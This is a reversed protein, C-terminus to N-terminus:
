LEHGTIVKPHPGRVLGIEKAVALGTQPHDGTVMVVKVGADRCRAIAAPVERRPPDHLGVLGAFTLTEELRDREPLTQLERYAFALVRLGDAALSGEADIITRRLSQILPEVGAGGDWTSCRPLVAELAGKVFVVFGGATAHVTAMRRRDASFPILDVRELEYGQPLAVRAMEVLAVEMPDGRLRGADGSDDVTECLAAGDFLRRHRVPVDPQSGLDAVDHFRGAVFLRRAVMRSETLTGTKDTCIVTAAGLTQVAPLHRVLTQRAAMREAAMAMSLTLTPLLGEPVNAVIVGIAFVFNSWFPLGVVRGVVFLVLGLLMSLVAILRSLREIEYHLPAVAEPAMQTLQAIRGFETRMGTAVVLAVARGAVVATGALVMSRHQAPADDASETDAKASRGQPISEGTLTANDIKVDFAELVRCDAPVHDGEQLEIVDGPVLDVNPLQILRGDRRVRVSQPLLRQLAAITKHARREHWYSFVGNVVIVAVIAGALTAMGSGPNRYAAIAALAAAAWLILAFFHTFQSFLQLIAARHRLRTLRNLGFERQRVQADAATLGAATSRLSTLADSPSLRHISGTM